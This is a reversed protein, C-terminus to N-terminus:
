EAGNVFAEAGYHWYGIANSAVPNPSQIVRAQKFADKISSDYFTAAGGASIIIHIPGVSRTRKLLEAVVSGVIRPTIKDVLPQIEVNRFGNNFTKEGNRLATEIREAEQTGEEPHESEMLRVVEDIIVSTANLSSGSFEKKRDGRAFMVYDMSYFGPDIVLINSFEVDEDSILGERNLVDNMIGVGQSLVGVEKVTIFTGPSVEHTGSLQRSLQEREEQSNAIRVPLGTVLMDIINSRGATAKILAGYFLAMYMETSHYKDHLERHGVRNSFVRWENGNPYVKVEHESKKALALDTEPESTAYAPYVQVSPEFSQADGIAIKVNSYGIDLGVVFQSKQKMKGGKSLVLM